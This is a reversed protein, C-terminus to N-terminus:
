GVTTTSWPSWTSSNGASDTARASLQWVSGSPLNGLLAGSTAATNSLVTRGALSVPIKVGGPAGVRLQRVRLDYKVSLGARPAGIGWVGPLAHGASTAPLATFPGPSHAAVTVLGTPAATGDAALLASGDQGAGALTWGYVGDPLTAGSGDRGDWDATVTSGAATGTLTRVVTGAAGTLTLQVVGLPKGAWATFRWRDASGDGNPSFAARAASGLVLAPGATRAPDLAVQVDGAPDVWAILDDDMVPRVATAVAGLSVPTPAAPSATWLTDGELWSVATGAAALARPGAQTPFNGVARGALDYVLIGNRDPCGLAVRAQAVAFSVQGPCPNPVITRPNKASAPLQLDRVRITDEADAWVLRHGDLGAPRGAVTRAVVTGAADYVATGALTYPGSAVLPDGDAVAGALRAVVQGADTVIVDHRGAGDAAPDARATRDGSRAVPVGPAAEVTGGAAAVALGSDTSVTLDRLTDAGGSGEALTLTGASLALHHVEAGPGAPVSLSGGPDAAASAAPLVAAALLVAGLATSSTRWWPSRASSM